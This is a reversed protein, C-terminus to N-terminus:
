TAGEGHVTAWEGLYMGKKRAAGAASGDARSGDSWEEVRERGLREIDVKGGGHDGRRMWRQEADLVDKLEVRM